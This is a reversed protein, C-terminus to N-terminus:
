ITLAESPFFAKTECALFFGFTVLRMSNPHLVLRVSSIVKVRSYERYSFNARLGASIADRREGRTTLERCAAWKQNAWPTSLGNPMKFPRVVIVGAIMVIHSFIAPSVESSQQKATACCRAFVAPGESVVIMSPM